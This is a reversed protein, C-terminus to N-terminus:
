GRPAAGVPKRGFAFLRNAKQNLFVSRFLAVPLYAFRRDGVEESWAFPKQRTVVDQFGSGALLRQMPAETWYTLHYPPRRIEQVTAREWRSAWNPVSLAWVGGPKLLQMVRRAFGVPDTMHELVEWTTVADFSGPAYPSDEILGIEVDSETVKRAVEAASSSVELGATKWGNAQAVAMFGGTSCGVDLLRQSGDPRGYRDFFQRWAWATHLKRGSVQTYYNQYFENTDIQDYAADYLGPPVELPDAYVLNCGVCSLLRYKKWTMDLTQEAEECLPCTSTQKM